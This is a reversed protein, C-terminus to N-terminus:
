GRQQFQAYIAALTAKPKATDTDTNGVTKPRPQTPLKPAKKNWNGAARTNLQVADFLDALLHRDRGWGFHERGGTAHAVTLSTDPLRMILALVLMPAPGRGDIVATLDVQYHYM